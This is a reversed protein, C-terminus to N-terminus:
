IRAEDMANLTIILFIITLIITIKAWLAIWSLHNEIAPLSQLNALHDITEGQIPDSFKQEKLAAAYEKKKQAVKAKTKMSIPKELGDFELGKKYKWFENLIKDIKRVFKSVDEEKRGHKLLEISFDLDEVSMEPGLEELRLLANGRQGPDDHNLIFKIIEEIDKENRELTGVMPVYTEEESM